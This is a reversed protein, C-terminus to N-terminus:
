EKVLTKFIEAIYIRHYDKQPYITKDFNPEDFNSPDIDAHVMKKCIMVLSAQEFYTTNESFVPTLGAQEVKNTDRGSVSGGTACGLTAAPGTRSRRPRPRRGAYGCAIM